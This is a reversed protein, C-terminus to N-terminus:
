KKVVYHSRKSIFAQRMEDTANVLTDRIFSKEGSKYKRWHGSRIHMVPSAHTGGMDNRERHKKALIATVYSASNVKRYGPFPAKGQKKRIRNIKEYSVTKSEVGNTNLIMLATMFPDFLNASAAELISDTINNTVMSAFEKNGMLEPFRYAYPVVRAVYEDKGRSEAGLFLGRDAVVLMKVGRITMADLQLIEFDVCLHQQFRFPNVLYAASEPIAEKRNQLRAVKEEQLEYRKDDWTHIIIYPSSFPHGLADQAYLRGAKHAVTQIMENPWYGFDIIQGRDIAIAVMDIIAALEDSTPMYDQNTGPGSTILNEKAIERIREPTIQFTGIEDRSLKMEIAANGRENIPIAM